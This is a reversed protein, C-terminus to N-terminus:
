RVKKDVELQVDLDRVTQWGRHRPCAEPGQCWWEAEEDNDAGNLARRGEETDVWGAWENDGMELRADWGCRLGAREVALDLLRRRMVVRELALKCVERARMVDELRRRLECMEREDAEKMAKRVAVRADVSKNKELETDIDMAGAKNDETKVNVRPHSITVGERPRANKVAPWLEAPSRGSQVIKARMHAVGCEESCYKSFAGRAPKWCTPLTDHAPIHNLGRHCRPKYTTHLAPNEASIMDPTPFHRLILWIIFFSPVFLTLHVFHFIFPCISALFSCERASCSSCIFQDVLDVEAEPMGVCAPHYWEDCRDCAIMIKDEEYPTECLCYLRDDQQAM